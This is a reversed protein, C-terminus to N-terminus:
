LAAGVFVTGNVRFCLEMGPLHLVSRKEWLSVAEEFTKCNVMLSGQIFRISLSHASIGAQQVWSLLSYDTANLELM